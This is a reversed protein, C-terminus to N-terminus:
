IVRHIYYPSEEYLCFNKSQFAPLVKEVTLASLADSIKENEQLLKKSSEKDNNIADRILNNFKRKRKELKTTKNNENINEIINSSM